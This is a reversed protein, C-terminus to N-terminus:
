NKAKEASAEKPVKIAEWWTPITSEPANRAKSSFELGHQAIDAGEGGLAIADQFYSEADDYYHFTFEIFGRYAPVFSSNPDLQKAYDASEIAGYYDGSLAQAMALKLALRTDNPFLRVGERFM